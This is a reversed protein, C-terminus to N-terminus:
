KGYQQALAALAMNEAIADHPILAYRWPKGGHTAAHNSANECWRIAAEKKAVVAPDTLQNAAKPELMHIADGAEAM